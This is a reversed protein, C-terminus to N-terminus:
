GHDEDREAAIEGLRAPDIWGQSAAHRAAALTDEVLLLTGGARRAERALVTIADSRKRSRTVDRIYVALIRGPHDHLVSAYIEPDEQGSDGILIFPLAPYRDMIRNIAARKHMGHQLPIGGGSAGWDRLLLPGHPIEQLRLFDALLDYLNWPSSSVYFLPNPAAAGDRLARYFAAVGEFPLRTHANRLALTLVMRLPRTVDSRIVTDDLDSVVGFAAAPSPVLVRVRAARAPERLRPSVLSVRAHTWGALSGSGGALPVDAAVHGDPDAVAEVSTEGVTIRVRAGPVEDTRFRRITDRLNRWRGDQETPM